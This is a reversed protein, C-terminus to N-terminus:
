IDILDDFDKSYDVKSSVAIEEGDPLMQIAQLFASIGKGGQPTTYHYLSIVVNALCGDYLKGDLYKYGGKPDRETSFIPVDYDTKPKVLVNGEAWEADFKESAEVFTTNFQVAAPKKGWKKLAETIELEFSKQLRDYAESGIPVLVSVNFKPTGGPACSKQYVGDIYLLRVKKLTLKEM